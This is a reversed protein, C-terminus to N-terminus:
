RLTLEVRVPHVLKLYKHLGERFEFCGQVEQFREEYAESNQTIKRYGKRAQNEAGDKPRVRQVSPQFKKVLSGLNNPPVTNQQGQKGRGASNHQPSSDYGPDHEKKEYLYSIGGFISERKKM